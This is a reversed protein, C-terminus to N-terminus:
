AALAAPAPGIYGIEIVRAMERWIVLWGAGGPAEVAMGWVEPAQQLGDEIVRYRRSGAGARASEPDETLRELACRLRGGLESARQAQYEEWASPAFDLLLSNM